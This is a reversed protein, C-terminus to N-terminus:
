KRTAYIVWTRNDQTFLIELKKNNLRIYNTETAEMNIIDDQETRKFAISSITPIDDSFVFSTSNGIKVVNVSSDEFHTMSEKDEFFVVGDYQGLFFNETTVDKKTWYITVVILFLGLIGIIGLFVKVISKM